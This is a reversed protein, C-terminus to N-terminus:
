LQGKTHNTNLLLNYKQKYLEYEGFKYRDYINRNQFM